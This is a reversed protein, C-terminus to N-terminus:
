ISRTIDQLSQIAGRVPSDGSSIHCPLKCSADPLAAKALLEEGEKIATDIPSCSIKTAGISWTTGGEALRRGTPSKGQPSAATCPLGRTFAPAFM